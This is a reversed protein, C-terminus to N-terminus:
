NKTRRVRKPGQTSTVQRKDKLMRPATIIKTEAQIEWKKTKKKLIQSDKNLRLIQAKRRTGNM